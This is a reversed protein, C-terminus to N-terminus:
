CESTGVWPESVAHLPLQFIVTQTNKKRKLFLWVPFHIDEWALTYLYPWRRKGVTCWFNGLEEVTMNDPLVSPVMWSPYLDAHNAADKTFAIYRPLDCSISLHNKKESPM